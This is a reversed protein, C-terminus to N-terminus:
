PSSAAPDPTLRQLNGSSNKFHPVGDVVVFSNVPATAADNTSMSTLAIAGSVMHVKELSLGGEDGVSIDAFKGERGVRVSDSHLLLRRGGNTDAEAVVRSCTVDGGPCLRLGKTGAAEGTVSAGAELVVHRLVALDRASLEASGATEVLSKSEVAFTGDLGAQIGGALEETKKAATAADEIQKQYDDHLDRIITSAQDAVAIVSGRRETVENALDKELTDADDRLRQQRDWLVWSVWGGAAVLAIVLLLTELM